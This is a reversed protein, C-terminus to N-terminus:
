DPTAIQPVPAVLVVCLAVAPSVDKPVGFPAPPNKGFKCDLFTLRGKLASLPSNNLLALFEHVHQWFQKFIHCIPLKTNAIQLMRSTQSFTEEDTERDKRGQKAISLTELRRKVALLPPHRGFKPMVTADGAFMRATKCEPVFRPPRM